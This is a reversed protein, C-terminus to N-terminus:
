KLSKKIDLSNFLAKLENYQNDILDAKRILKIDNNSICIFFWNNKEIIQNVENWNYRINYSQGTFEYEEFNLKISINEKLKPNSLILKTQRYKVLLIIFPYALLFVFSSSFIESIKVENKIFSYINFLIILTILSSVIKNSKKNLYVSLYIKFYDKFIYKPKIIIEKDM